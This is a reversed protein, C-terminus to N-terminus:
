WLRTLQLPFCFLSALAQWATELPCFCFSKTRWVPSQVTFCNSNHFAFFCSSTSMQYVRRLFVVAWFPSNTASSWSILISILPSTHVALKVNNFTMTCSFPQFVIVQLSLNFWCIKVAWLKLYVALSIWMSRQVELNCINTGGHYISNNLHLM